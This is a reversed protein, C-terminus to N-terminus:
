EEIKKVHNIVRTVGVKEYDIPYIVMLSKLTSKFNELKDDPLYILRDIIDQIMEQREAFNDKNSEM